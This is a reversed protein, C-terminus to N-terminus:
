NTQKFMLGGTIGVSSMAAKMNIDSHKHWDADYLFYYWATNIFTCKFNFVRKKANALHFGFVGREERLDWILGIDLIENATQKQGTLSGCFFWFMGDKGKKTAEAADLFM